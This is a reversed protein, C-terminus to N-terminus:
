SAALGTIKGSDAFSSHKLSVEGLVFHTDADGTKALLTRSFPRLVCQKFMTPDILYAETALQNRNLLVRVTGFPTVLIEVANTVTKSNGFDRTKNSGTAFDKVGLADKPSIMLVSPDSGNTYCNQHLTLVDDETLADNSDTCAVSTTIMNSASKMQRNVEVASEDTDATSSDDAVAGSGAAGAGSHGVMAAEVDLKLNKLTKALAYATEKARGHTKVADVTGAIKFAESIIQTRNSQVTPQSVATVTADGGEALTNSASGSRLTDELWEFTRASVKESKILTQFPTSSPSINAISQSVDEALGVTQYTQLTAM